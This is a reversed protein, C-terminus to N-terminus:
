PTVGVGLLYDAFEANVQTRIAKLIEWMFAELQPELGTGDIQILADGRNLSRTQAEIRAIEAEALKKQIDLAEQRRKNELDIQEMIELQKSRDATDTFNGFLSGLLDGTSQITTDISAFTAKVREMDTELKATNLSVFAEINKIRENSAIEEMKVKFDNAVKTIETLQDVTLKGGKTLADLQKAAEETKDAVAAFAGTAKVTGSTVSDYVTVMKGLEENWVQTAKINKDMPEEVSLGDGDGWELNSVKKDLEDFAQKSLDTKGALQDLRSIMGDWSNVPVPTALENLFDNYANKNDQIASEYRAIASIAGDFQTVPVPTKLTENLSQAKPDAADIVGAWQKIRDTLAAFGDAIDAAATGPTAGEYGALWDPWAYDALKEAPILWKVLAATAAGLAVAVGQPGAMAAAFASFGGTLAGLQGGFAILSLLGTNVVDLAGSFGSFGKSFGLLMGLYGQAEPTANKFALAMERMGSLFPALGGLEGATVNVIGSLVDLVNQIAERLGEITDLKIPGFLAELAKKSEIGLNEFSKVLGDFNLDAFAAPLNKAVTRILNELDNLQPRLLDFLPDLGGSDIINKFAIGLEGISSVVGTVNVQTQDGLARLFQRWAENASNIQAQASKLRITVETDISGGASANAVKVREMVTKWEDMLAVFKGAQEKGTLTAATFLKQEDTLQMWSPIMTEIIDKVSGIPKGAADFTVGLGQMVEQADAAPKVLSLYASKLGNAAEAGSNGADIVVSLSAAVEEFSQGTLKAIPALQAFGEALDNFGGESIDAVKNLVDAIRQASEAAKDNEIGFGALSNKLIDTAQAASVDGAIMLKLSQEVLQVSTDLDFSAAKFDATSEVLENANTGYKVALTELVGSFDRATGENDEMQKQLSVLSSEFTVSEKYALTGMVGAVALLVGQVVALQDAMDAFPDIVDSAASNLDDFNKIIEKTTDSTNDIGNFIIEIVSKVTAM